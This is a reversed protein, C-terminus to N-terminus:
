EDSGAKAILWATASSLQFRVSGGIRYHPLGAALQQDIWRRSFGLHAALQTKTIFREGPNFSETPSKRIQHVTATM